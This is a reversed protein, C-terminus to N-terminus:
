AAEGLLRAVLREAGEYALLAEDFEVQDELYDARIRLSYLLELEEAADTDLIGWSRADRPLRDHRFYCQGDDTFAVGDRLARDAVALYAAYYIRSAAANLLGERGEEDPLLREAAELNEKAKEDLRM